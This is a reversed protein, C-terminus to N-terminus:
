AHGMSKAYQALEFFSPNSLTNSGLAHESQRSVMAVARLLKLRMIGHLIVTPSLYRAQARALWGRGLRPHYLLALGQTCNSM